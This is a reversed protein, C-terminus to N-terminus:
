GRQTRPGVIATGVRVITAGEQVGVQYDGSMGMSLESWTAQPFQEAFYNRLNNLKRFYPRSKEPNPDYPPMSMLGRVELNEMELLPGIENQLLSWHREDWASWGFKSAEQSVNCELLIPIVRGIEKAFNNLRRALKLSDVSHVWSFNESVLRAKRSQVHGIMHWEINRDVFAEIKPLADEVYNEGLCYEGAAIVQAVTEIPHGKTVVVLKVSNEDRGVSNAALGINRRVRQVNAQILGTQNNAMIM